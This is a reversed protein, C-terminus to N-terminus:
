AISASLAKLAGEYDPESGLEKVYEVYVVKDSKDVIFIARTLLRLEKILVGYNLGFSADRHDSLTKVKNIEYEQCFRKQAFPLDMSIFFLQKKSASNPVQNIGSIIFKDDKSKVEIPEPIGALLQKTAPGVAELTNCIEQLMAVVYTANKENELTVHRLTTEGNFQWSVFDNGDNNKLTSIDFEGVRNQAHRQFIKKNRM